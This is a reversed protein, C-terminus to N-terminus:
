NGSFSYSAASRPAQMVMPQRRAVPANPIRQMRPRCYNGSKGTNSVLLDVHIHDGHHRDGGPGLVTYFTQCAGNYVERLFAQESATGRSWHKKVVIEHGDALRFGGIDLANGFAHESAKGGASNRTRCSYAAMQKIEVVPQGFRRMAAPQVSKQVWNNVAATIPCNVTAAPSVKVRGGMLASVRLAHDMGCAGGGKPSKTEVIYPAQKALGSAMCQAEGKSRWEGRSAGFPSMSCGAITAAVGFALM